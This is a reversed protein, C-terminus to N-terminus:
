SSLGESLRAKAKGLKARYNESCVHVPRATIGSVRALLRRRAYTFILAGGQFM